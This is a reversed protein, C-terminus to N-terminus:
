PAIAACIGTVVTIVGGGGGMTLTVFTNTGMSGGAVNAFEEDSLEGGVSQPLVEAVHSLRMDPFGEENLIVRRDAPSGAADLRARFDEDTMYRQFFDRAQDVSM